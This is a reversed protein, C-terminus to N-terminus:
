QFIPQICVYLLLQQQILLAVREHVNLEEELYPHYANEFFFWKLVQLIELTLWAFRKWSIFILDRNM